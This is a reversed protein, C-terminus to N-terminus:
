DAKTETKALVEKCKACNLQHTRNRRESHMRRGCLAKFTNGNIRARKAKPEESVAEHDSEDRPRKRDEGDPRHLESQQMQEEEQQRLLRIRDENALREMREEDALRQMREIREKCSQEDRSLADCRMWRLFKLAAFHADDMYAYGADLRLSESRIRCDFAFSFWDAAERYDGVEFAEKGEEEAEKAIRKVEAYTATMNRSFEM